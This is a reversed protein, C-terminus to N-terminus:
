VLDSTPLTLHTYSVPVYSSSCDLTPNQSEVDSYVSPSGDPLNHNTNWENQPTSDFGSIIQWHSPTGTGQLSVSKIKDAMNYENYNNVTWSYQYASFDYTTLDNVFEAQKNQSHYSHSTNGGGSTVDDSTVPILKLRTYYVSSGQSVPM